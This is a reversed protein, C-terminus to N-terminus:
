FHNEFKFVPSLEKGRKGLVRKKAVVWAGVKGRLRGMVTQLLKSGREKLLQRKGRKFGLEKEGNYKAKVSKRM